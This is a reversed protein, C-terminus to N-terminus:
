RPPPEDQATHDADKDFLVVESGDFEKGYSIFSAM